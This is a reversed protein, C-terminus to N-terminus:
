IPKVQESHIKIQIKDLIDKMYRSANKNYKIKLEYKDEQMKNNPIEMMSSTNNTMEIKKNNKYLEYNITSKLKKNINDKIEIMYRVKVDSVKGNENYNRIYFNYTGETKTDIIDVAPNSRVELIPEGIEGKYKILISNISKGISAGTLFLIIVIFIITIYTLNKLYKVDKINKTNEINKKNEVKKIKKNKKM